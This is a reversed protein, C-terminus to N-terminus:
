STGASNCCTIDLRQCKWMVSADIFIMGLFRVILDCPSFFIEFYKLYSQSKQTRGCQYGDKIYRPAAWLNLM